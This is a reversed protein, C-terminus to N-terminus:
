DNTTTRGGNELHHVNFWWVKEMVGKRLDCTVVAVLGDITDAVLLLLGLSEQSECLVM